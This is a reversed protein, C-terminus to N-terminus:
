IPPTPELMRLKQLEELIPQLKDDEFKAALSPILTKAEDATDPCLSGADTLVLGPGLFSTV